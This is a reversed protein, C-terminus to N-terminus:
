NDQHRQRVQDVTEIDTKYQSSWLQLCQEQHLRVLALFLSIILDRLRGAISKNFCGLISDAEEAALACQWGMSLESEALVGLDKGASSSGLWDAGLRHWHLQNSLGLSLVRSTGKSFKTLNKDAWEEMKDQDMQIATRGELSKVTGELKTDDAFRSLTCDKVEELDHMFTNLLVPEPASGQSVGTAGPRQTSYMGNVVARLNWDDLWCKVWITKWEDLSYHRLM